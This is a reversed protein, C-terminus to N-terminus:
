AFEALLTAAAPRDLLLVDAGGDTFFRTTPLTATAPNAGRITLGLSMVTTVGLDDDVRVNDAVGGLADLLTMPNRTAGLEAFVASLFAQQRAVRGLDATGDRREQGDLIETYSRSRVYALAQTSDLENVGAQPLNLGSKPDFAPHPVDISITGLADVLSLFGAFDVELYHDIGIGLQDQVTEILLEPGGISFAANIRRNTGGVPVWLDRPIALLRVDDGDVRLIAITDTREGESGFIVGANEVEADVGERSDTGVVLYNTATASGVMVESLDLKEVGAWKWWASLGFFAPILALLTLAAVVWPWRRRRRRPRQPMAPVAVEPIATAPESSADLPIHFSRPDRAPGEM